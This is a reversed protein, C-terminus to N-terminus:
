IEAKDPPDADAIVQTIGTLATVIYRIQDRSLRRTPRGRQRLRAEALTKEAQVQAIWESVLQPDAGADLAARYNALKRDCDAVIQTEAPIEEQADTLRDLTDAVRGPTFTTALWRDLL